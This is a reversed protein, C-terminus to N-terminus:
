KDFCEMAKQPSTESLLLGKNYWALMHHPNIQLIEDFCAIAEERRTMKALIICKRQLTEVNSRDFNLIKECSKIAHELRGCSDEITIKCLIAKKNHPQLKIIDELLEIANDFDKINYFFNCLGFKTDASLRGLKIKSASNLTLKKYLTLLSEMKKREEFNIETKVLDFNTVLLMEKLTRSIIGSVLSLQLQSKEIDSYM